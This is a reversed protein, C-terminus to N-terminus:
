EVLYLIHLKTNRIESNTIQTNTDFKNKYSFPIKSLLHSDPKQIRPLNQLFLILTLISVSEKFM